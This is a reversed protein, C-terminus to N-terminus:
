KELLNLIQKAKIFIDGDMEMIDRAIRSTNEEEIQEPILLKQLWTATMIDGSKISENYIKYIMQTTEIERDVTATFASIMSNIHQSKDEKFVPYIIRYDAETLYNYVWDHHLKEEAARKSFYVELDTIGELAFYNAFSNYLLYNEFEHVLQNILLKGIEENLLCVKRNM